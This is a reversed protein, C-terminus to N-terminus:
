KKEQRQRGNVEIEMKIDNLIEKITHNQDKSYKAYLYSMCIWDFVQNDISKRDNEYDLDYNIDKLLKVIQQCDPEKQYKNRMFDIMRHVEYHSQTDKYKGVQHPRNLFRGIMIVVLVLWVLSMYYAAKIASIETIDPLRFDSGLITLIINDPQTGVVGILASIDNMTMPIVIMWFGLIVILSIIIFSLTFSSSHKKKRM